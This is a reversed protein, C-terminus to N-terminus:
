AGTYKGELLEGLNFTTENLKDTDFPAEQAKKLATNLNFGEKMPNYMMHSNDSKWFLKEWYAQLDEWTLDAPKDARANGLCIRGSAYYNYFPGYLLKTGKKPSKGKFSFVSLTKGDVIYVCGPMHYIGDKMGTGASFLLERKGPPTWWIFREKGETPDAFLLNRPVPGHLITSETKLVTDAISRLLKLSAPKAPGLSGDAKVPRTEIYFSAGYNNPSCDSYVVLVARPDYKRGLRDNLITM